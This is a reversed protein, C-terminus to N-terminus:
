LYASVLRCSCLEKMGRWREKNEKLENITYEYCYESRSGKHSVESTELALATTVYTSLGHFRFESVVAHYSCKARDGTEELALFHPSGARLSPSRAQGVGSFFGRLCASYACVSTRGSM